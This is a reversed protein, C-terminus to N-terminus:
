AFDRSHMGLLPNPLASDYIGRLDRFVRVDFAIVVRLPQGAFHKRLYNVHGQVSTVITEQNIRNPGIGVPGRRGSTGVPMVRYFSDLLVDWRQREALGELQPHFDAYREAAWWASLQQIAAERHREAVDVSRLGAVIDGLQM